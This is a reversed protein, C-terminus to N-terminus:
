CWSVPMYTIDATVVQYQNYPTAVPWSAKKAGSSYSTTLNSYTGVSTDSILQKFLLVM